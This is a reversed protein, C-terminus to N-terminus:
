ILTQYYGLCLVLPNLSQTLCAAASAVLSKVWILKELMLLFQYSFIFTIFFHPEPEGDASRNKQYFFICIFLYFVARSM